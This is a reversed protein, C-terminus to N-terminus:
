ANEGEEDKPKLKKVTMTQYPTKISFKEWIDPHDRKLAEEGGFYKDSLHHDWDDFSEKDFSKRSRKSFSITYSDGQALRNDQMKLRIENNLRSYEKTWFSKKEEAEFRKECLLNLDETLDIVNDRAGYISDIAKKCEVTHDASNPPNIELVHDSWWKELIPVCTEEYWSNESLETYWFEVVGESVADAISLKGKNILSWIRETAKFGACYFGDLDPRCFWNHRSQLEVRLPLGHEWSDGNYGMTKIELGFVKGDIVGEGDISGHLQDFGDRKYMDLFCEGFSAGLVTSVYDRCIPEALHGREFVPNSKQEKIPLDYFRRVPEKSSWIDMESGMSKFDASIRGHLICPADSGGISRSRRVIWSDSEKHEM